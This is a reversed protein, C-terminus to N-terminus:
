ISMLRGFDLLAYHYRVLYHLALLGSLVSREHILNPLNQVKSVTKGRCTYLDRSLMLM